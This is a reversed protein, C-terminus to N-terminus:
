RAHVSRFRPIRLPAGVARELDARASSAAALADAYQTEADLLTRRADIVDFASSGGIGYSASAVRYAERASPLLEDRIYTAQRLATDATAYAARVDQGM